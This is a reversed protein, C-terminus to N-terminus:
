RTLSYEVVQAKFKRGSEGVLLKETGTESAPAAVLTPALLGDIVQTKQYVLKGNSDYVYLVSLDPHLSKKVALYEPEEKKLKVTIAKVDGYLRCGPADLQIVTKGEFDVINIKGQETLLLNPKTDKNPWRIIAFESSTTSIKLQDTERGESDLVTFERNNYVIEGKGDDNIDAIELHGLSYVPHTWRTKGEVNVLCIGDRFSHYLAFEPKGDGDIDGFRVGDIVGTGRGQSLYKWIEKGDLGFLHVGDPYMYAAFGCSHNENLFLPEITKFGKRESLNLRYQEQYSDNLFVVGRPLTLLIEMGAAPRCIMRTISRIGGPAHDEFIVKGTLFDSSAQNLIKILEEPREQQVLLKTSFFSLRFFGGLILPIAVAIIIGRAVRTVNSFIHTVAMDILWPILFWMGSGFVGFQILPGAIGFLKLVSPPLLLLLPADLFFFWVFVLSATSSRSSMMAFFALIVLCLHVAAFVVGIKLGISKQKM